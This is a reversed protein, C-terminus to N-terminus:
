PNELADHATDSRLEVMALWRTKEGARWFFRGRLNSMELAAHAIPGGEDRGNEMLNRGRLAWSRKVLGVSFVLGWECVAFVGGGDSVVRWALSFGCCGLAAVELGDRGAEAFCM